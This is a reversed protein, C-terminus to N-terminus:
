PTEKLSAELLNTREVAQPRTELAGVRADIRDIADKISSGNNPTLEHEVFMITAELRKFFRVAPGIPWKYVVGVAVGIAGVLACVRIIENEHISWAVAFM